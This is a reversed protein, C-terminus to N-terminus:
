PRRCVDVRGTPCELAARDWEAADAAAEYTAKLFALLEGDPDDASRVSEYPLLFEGM